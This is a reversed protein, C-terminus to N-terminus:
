LVRVMDGYPALRQDATLLLLPESQSQAVLLRDFPDKHDDLLPLAAVTILHANRIDLWEFGTKEVNHAFKEIDLKLKGISVKIAIEWLSARSVFVADAQDVQSKAELPLKPSGAEWWLV